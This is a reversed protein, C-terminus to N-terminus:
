GCATRGSSAGAMFAGSITWGVAVWATTESVGMATCDTIGSSTLTGACVGATVSGLSPECVMVGIRRKISSASSRELTNFLVLVTRVPVSLEQDSLKTTGVVARSRAEATAGAGTWWDSM